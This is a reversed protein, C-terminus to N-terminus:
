IINQTEDTAQGREKVEHRSTFTSLYTKNKYMKKM